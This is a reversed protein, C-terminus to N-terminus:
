SWNSFYNNKYMIHLFLLLTFIRVLRCWKPWLGVTSVALITRSNRKKRLLSSTMSTSNQFGSNQLVSNEFESEFDNNIEKEFEFKQKRRKRRLQRKQSLDFKRSLVYRRFRSCIHYLVRNAFCSFM